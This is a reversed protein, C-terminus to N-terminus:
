SQRVGSQPAIRPHTATVMLSCNRLETLSARQGRDAWEIVIWKSQFELKRRILVKKRLRKKPLKQNSDKRNERWIKRQYVIVKTEMANRKGLSQRSTQKKNQKMHPVAQNPWFWRRQANYQVWIALSSEKNNIRLMLVYAKRSKNQKVPVKM